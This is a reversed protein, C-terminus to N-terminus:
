ATEYVKRPVTNTYLAILGGKKTVVDWEARQIRVGFGRARIAMKIEISQVGPDWRRRAIIPLATGVLALPESLASRGQGYTPIWLRDSSVQLRPNDDENAASSGCNSKTATISSPLTGHWVAVCLCLYPLPGLHSSAFSNQCDRAALNGTRFQGRFSRTEPKNQDRGVHKARYTANGGHGHVGQAAADPRLIKMGWLRMRQRRRESDPRRNLTSPLAISHAVDYLAAGPARTQSPSTSSPPVPTSEVVTTVNFAGRCNVGWFRSWGRAAHHKLYAYGLERAVANRLEFEFTETAPHQRGRGRYEDDAGDSEQRRPIAVNRSGSRSGCCWVDREHYWAGNQTAARGRPQVGDRNVKDAEGESGGAAVTVVEGGRGLSRSSDFSDRYSDTRRWSSSKHLMSSASEGM